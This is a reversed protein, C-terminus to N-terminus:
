EVDSQNIDQWEEPVYFEGDKANTYPNKLKPVLTINASNKSKIVLWTQNLKFGSNAPLALALSNGRKVVKSEFLIIM